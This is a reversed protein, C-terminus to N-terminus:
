SRIRLRRRKTHFQFLFSYNVQCTKCYIDKEHDVYMGKELIKSCNTCNICKKHYYGKPGFTQEPNYSYKGVFYISQECKACNNLTGGYKSKSNTTPSEENDRAVKNVLPGVKLQELPPLEHAKLGFLRSILLM